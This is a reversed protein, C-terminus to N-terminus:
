APARWWGAVDFLTDTNTTTTLCLRGQADVAMTTTNAAAGGPKGNVSSSIPLAGCNSATVYGTTSPNVMTLTGSVGVFGPTAANVNITQGAQHRGFWGGIRNTGRTDLMRKARVPVFTAGGLDKTFVGTRDVVLRFTSGAAIRVRICVQDGASVPVFVAGSVTEGAGFSVNAAAPPTGADIDCRYVTLNGGASPKDVVVSLAAADIDAGPLTPETITITRDVATNTAATNVLRKPTLLRLTDAGTVDSTFAGQLALRATVGASARACLTAGAGLRVIAQASRTQGKTFNVSSVAPVAEGCPYLTVYGGGEARTATIGVAVAATGAPVAASLDVTRPAGAVLAADLVTRQNRDPVFALGSGTTAPATARPGLYKSTISSVLDAVILTSRKVYQTASSPHIGGVDTTITSAALAAPWNWAIMRGPRAAAARDLAANWGLMGATYAGSPYSRQVVKSWWITTNPWRALIRNAVMDIYQLCTAVTSPTCTGLYNAGLNVAVVAPEVGQAKWMDIVDVASVAPITWTSRMGLATTMRIPGWGKAAL